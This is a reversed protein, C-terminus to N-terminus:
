VGRLRRPGATNVGTTNSCAWCSNSSPKSVGSTASRSPMLRSVRRLATPAPRKCLATFFFRDLQRALARTRHGITGGGHAHAGDVDLATQGGANTLEIRHRRIEGRGQVYGVAPQQTSQRGQQRHAQEFAHLAM